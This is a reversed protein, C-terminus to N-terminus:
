SKEEQRKWEPIYHRPKIEHSHYSVGFTEGVDRLNKSYVPHKLKRLAKAEIQRIREKNVDYERGVDSLSHEIGDQTLGFRMRLVREERPTLKSLSDNIIKIGEDKLVHDILPAADESSGVLLGAVESIDMSFSTKNKLLAKKLHQPPCLDEPLCKLIEALKGFVLSWTGNKNLPPCKFNIYEGVKQPSLNHHRCFDAVSEHGTEEIKKLLINNKVRVEVRYDKDTM